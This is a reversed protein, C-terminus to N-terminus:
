QLSDFQIMLDDRLHSQSGRLVSWRLRRCVLDVFFYCFIYLGFWLGIAVIICIIQIKWKEQQAKIM